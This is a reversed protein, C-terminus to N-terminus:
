FNIPEWSGMGVFGSSQLLIFILVEQLNVDRMGRLGRKMVQTFLLKLPKTYQLEYVLGTQKTFFM